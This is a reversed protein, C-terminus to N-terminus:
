SSGANRRIEAERDGPEPGVGGQTGGQYRRNPRRRDKPFFGEMGEQDTADLAKFKNWKEDARKLSADYENVLGKFTDSKANAFIMSREAVLLQQLDRNVELVYDLSPLRVESIERINGEIHHLSWTGSLGIIAMFVIMVAFGLALKVGITRHKFWNLMHDEGKPNM